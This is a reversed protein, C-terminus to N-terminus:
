VTTLYDSDHGTTMGDSLVSGETDSADSLVDTPIDETHHATKKNPSLPKLQDFASNKPAPFKTTSQNLKPTIPRIPLPQKTFSPKVTNPKIVMPKLIKPKIPTPEPWDSDTETEISLVKPKIPTPEPWDSEQETTVSVDSISETKSADSLADDDTTAHEMRTKIIPKKAPLSTAMPTNVKPAIPKLQIGGFPSAATNNARELGYKPTAMSTNVKPVIPKSIIKPKIPTPEPWDSETETDNSLIKPKIPTPEPWDSEQETTAGLDDSLSETKSADSMADDDTTAHEMRTKIIPKKAPLSTAMPTNVKQAIPKLQIGAFPSTATNRAHELSARSVPNTSPIAPKRPPTPTPLPLNDSNDSSSEDSFLDEIRPEDGRDTYGSINSKMTGTNYGPGPKVTGGTLRSVMSM